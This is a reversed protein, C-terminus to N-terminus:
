DFFIFKFFIVNKRFTGAKGKVLTDRWFNKDAERFTKTEQKLLPNNRNGESSTPIVNYGANNKTYEIEILKIGKSPVTYMDARYTGNSPGGIALGFSYDGAHNKQIKFPTARDSVPDLGLVSFSRSRGSVLNIKEELIDDISIFLFIM